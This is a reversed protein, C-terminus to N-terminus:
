ALNAYDGWGTAIRVRPAFAATGGRGTAAYRYVAGAPDRAILDARGDGDLDGPAALDAYGSWGPGVLVRAGFPTAASGTGPFLYLRGATDRAVLDTRGDGSVDGAGVLRDYAGWGTGVRVPAGAALGRGDGAHLWLTGASDRTLLDGKGDGTLDGVGLLLKADTWTGTVPTDTEYNHVGTSSLKLLRADDGVDLGAAFVPRGSWTGDFGAPSRPRFTGDALELYEYLKKDSGLALVSHKGYDPVGGHGVVFRLGHGGTGYKTRAAFVGSGTSRYFWLTGDFARAVLDTRGDRDVDDAAVLQNYANWGPGVKVRARFPATASGTGKYFFLDGALSKAVLDGIGDRDLDGAGVLQDYAGWSPGVWVRAGFPEGTLAGTSRYLYLDGGPTRALLDPRGDRTLDGAALVKNYAQWGTGYWLRRTTGYPGDAGYLALTGWASLTLLEPAASGGLDGPALVDKSVEAMDPAQINFDVTEHTRSLTAAVRGDVDRVLDDPLGDGDLDLRPRAGAAAAASGAPASSRGTAGAAPRKPLGLRVEPLGSGAAGSPGTATVAAPAGAASATTASATTAPLLAGASLALATCAALRGVRAAARM